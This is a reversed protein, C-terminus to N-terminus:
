SDDEDLSFDHTAHLFPIEGLFYAWGATAKKGPALLPAVVPVRYDIAAGPAARRGLGQPLRASATLARGAVGCSVSVITWM